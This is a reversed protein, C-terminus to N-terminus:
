QIFKIIKIIDEKPYIFKECMSCKIEAGVDMHVYNSLFCNNAAIKTFDLPLNHFFLTYHKCVDCQIAYVKKNILELQSSELTTEEESLMLGIDNEIIEQNETFLQPPENNQVTFPNTIRIYRDSGEAVQWQGIDFFNFNDQGSRSGNTIGSWTATTSPTFSYDYTAVM